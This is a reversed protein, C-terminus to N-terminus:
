DYWCWASPNPGVMNLIFEDADRFMDVFEQMSKPSLSETGSWEVGEISVRYDEREPLVVYGHATFGPNKKLFNLFDSITPSNNQTETPDAFKEKVLLSLKEATLGSFRQIGGYSDGLLGDMIENRRNYNMNMKM